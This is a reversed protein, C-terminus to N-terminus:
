GGRESMDRTEEESKERKSWHEVGHGVEDSRCKSNSKSRAKEDLTDRLRGNEKTNEVTKELYDYEDFDM